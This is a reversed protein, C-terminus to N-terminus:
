PTVEHKIKTLEEFNRRNSAQQALEEAVTEQWDEVSEPCRLSDLSPNSVINSPLSPHGNRTTENCQLLMEDYPMGSYSDAEFALYRCVCSEIEIPYKSKLDGIADSESCAALYVCLGTVTGLAFVQAVRYRRIM